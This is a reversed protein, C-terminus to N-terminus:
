AAKSCRAIMASIRAIYCKRLRQREEGSGGSSDMRILRELIVLGPPGPRTNDKRCVYMQSQAHSLRHAQAQALFEEEVLQQVSEEQEFFPPPFKDEPFKQVKYNRIPSRRQGASLQVEAVLLALLVGVPM